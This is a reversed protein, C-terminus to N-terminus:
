EFQEEKRLDNIDSDAVIMGNISELIAIKNRIDVVRFKIDNDHSNRSVIDGICFFM